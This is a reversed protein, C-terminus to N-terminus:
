PSASSPIWTNGTFLDHLVDMASQEHKRATSLYSRVNLFVQAGNESRWGGSIKHQLKVMRVDREAQNNDFPVRFDTAFRLVDERHTTLRVLLSGAQGLAPRGRKGTRPPSPNLNMGEAILADYRRGFAAIRRRSLTTAGTDKATQVAVHLEVLLEALQAPWHQGTLEGIGALERLHHANCLGHSAQDYQRYVVLGDHVAVGTFSPLVGASDM